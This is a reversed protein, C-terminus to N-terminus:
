RRDGTALVEAREHMARRILESLTVQEARAALRFVREEEPSVRLTLVTTRPADKNGVM